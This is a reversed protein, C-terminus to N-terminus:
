QKNHTLTFYIYYEKGSWLSNSYAGNAARIMYKGPQLYYNKVQYAVSGNPAIILNTRLSGGGEELLTCEFTDFALLEDKTPTRGPAYGGASLNLYIPVPTYFEYVDVDSSDSFTGIMTESSSINGSPATATALHGESIIKEGLSYSYQGTSNYFESNYVDSYSTGEGTLSLFRFVNAPTALSVKPFETHSATAVGIVEGYANIIPSGLRKSFDPTNIHIFSHNTGYIKKEPKQIVDSLMNSIQGFPDTISYVKDGAKDIDSDALTLFPFTSERRSNTPFTSVKIIAYDANRNYHLVRLVEYKKGNELTVFANNSKEILRYSTVAIGDDSIFFGTGESVETEGLSTTIDFVAAASADFIQQKTLPNPRVITKKNIMVTDSFDGGSWSVNFGLSELVFRLPVYIRGDNHLVAASDMKVFGDPALLNQSGITILIQGNQMPIRATETASNWEVKYGCEEVIYRMPIQLRENEDYFPTGYEKPIALLEGELFIDIPKSSENAANTIFVTSFIISTIILIFFKIRM